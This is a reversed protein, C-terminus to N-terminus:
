VQQLLQPVDLYSVVSENTQNTVTKIKKPRRTEVTRKQDNGM